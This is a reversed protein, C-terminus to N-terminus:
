KHRIVEFREMKYDESKEIGAKRLAIGVQESATNVGELNPLLLGSKMGKRVIVGYKLPDLEEISIISEAKGLVDVSYIIESLEDEQVPYFRPDGTGASIANEIIEGAINSQVGNITGICGRLEGSKKLSVFAGAKSNLMEDPLDKPIKITEGTKVYNELSMRALKIYQDEQERLKMIRDGRKKYLSEVRKLSPNDMKINYSAVCYGVGFPGEYSLIEPLVEVGDLSGMLVLISRYGCEGAAEIFERDMEMIEDVSSKELLNVLTEDFKQGLPDFGAPADYTLRHSLDGSAVIISSSSSEEVAERIIRGFHYLEENCLLGYTIHVIKFDKYKKNIFYLPVMSGHDLKESIKYRKSSAKDISAIPINNQTSKQMIINVLESDVQYEFKIQPAGFHGLDGSLEKDTNISMADSFAPGHPPVIIILTDPKAEGIEEAATMAAAITARIREEEGGGIENIMIPPHPMLYTKLLKGM